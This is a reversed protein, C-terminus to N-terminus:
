TLTTETTIDVEGGQATGGGAVKLRAESNSRVTVPFGARFAFAIETASFELGALQLPRGGVLRDRVVPRRTSVAVVACDYRGVVRLAALRAEQVGPTSTPSPSPSASAGPGVFPSGAPSAAPSPAATG